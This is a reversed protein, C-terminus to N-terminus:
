HGRMMFLGDETEFSSITRDGNLYLYVEKKGSKFVVQYREENKGATEDEREMIEKVPYTWVKDETSGDEYKLISRVKVFYEKITKTKVVEEADTPEEMAAEVPEEVPVEEVVEEGKRKKKKKKGKKKKKKKKM